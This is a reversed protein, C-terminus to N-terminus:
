AALAWFFASNSVSTDIVTAEAGTQHPVHTLTTESLGKFINGRDTDRDRQREAERNRDRDRDRDTQRERNAQRDRDTQGNAQM